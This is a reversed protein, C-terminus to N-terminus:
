RGFRALTEAASGARDQAVEFTMGALRSAIQDCVADGEAVGRSALEAPLVKRLLVQMQPVDISAVDLGASRLAIRMTGRASLRDFATRAELEQCAHEFVPSDAM